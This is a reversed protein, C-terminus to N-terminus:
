IFFPIFVESARIVIATIISLLSKRATASLNRVKEEVLISVVQFLFILSNFQIIQIVKCVYSFRRIDSVARALDLRHFAESM